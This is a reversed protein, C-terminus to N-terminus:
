TLGSTSTIIFLTYSTASTPTGTIKIKSEVLFSLSNTTFTTTTVNATATVGTGDTSWGQSASGTTPAAWTGTAAGFGSAVGNSDWYYTAPPPVAPTSSVSTAAGSVFLLGDSSTTGPQSGPYIGWRFIVQDTPSQQYQGITVLVWNADV